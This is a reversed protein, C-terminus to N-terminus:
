NGAEVVSVLGDHDGDLAEFQARRGLFEGWSVEGDLNRDMKRFWEPGVEPWAINLKLGDAGRNSPEQLFLPPIGMSISLRYGGSLESSDITGDKNRDLEAAAREINLLEGRGLRRDSQRYPHSFLSKGDSNVTLM